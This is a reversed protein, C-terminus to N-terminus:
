NSRTKKKTKKAQTVKAPTPTENRTKGCGCDDDPDLCKAVGEACWMKGFEKAVTRQSGAKFKHVSYTFDKLFEIRM